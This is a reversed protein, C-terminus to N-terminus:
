GHGAPWGNVEDRYQTLEYVINSVTPDNHEERAEAVWAVVTFVVVMGFLLMIAEGQTGKSRGLYGGVM